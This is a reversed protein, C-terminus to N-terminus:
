IELLSIGPHHEALGRRVQWLLHYLLDARTQDRESLRIQQAKQARSDPNGVAQHCILDLYPKIHDVARYAPVPGGPRGTQQDPHPFYQPRSRDSFLDLLLEHGQTRWTLVRIEHYDQDLDLDIGLLLEEPVPIEFILSGSPAPLTLRLPDYIQGRARAAHDTGPQAAVLDVSGVTIFANVAGPAALSYATDACYARTRSAGTDPDILGHPAVQDGAPDPQGGGLVLPEFLFSSREDAFYDPLLSLFDQAQQGTWQKDTATFQPLRDAGRLHQTVVPETDPSIQDPRTPYFEVLARVPDFGLTRWGQARPSSHDLQNIDAVPQHQHQPQHVRAPADADDGPFTVPIHIPPIPGTLTM